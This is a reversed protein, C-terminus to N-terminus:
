GEWGKEGQLLGGVGGSKTTKPRDWALDEITKAESSL